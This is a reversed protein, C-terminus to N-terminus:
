DENILIRNLEEIEEWAEADDKIENLREIRKNIEPFLELM